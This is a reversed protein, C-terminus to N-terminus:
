PKFILIDPEQDNEIYVLFMDRAAKFFGRARSLNIRFSKNKGTDNWSDYENERSAFDACDIILNEGESRVSLIKGRHDGLPKQRLVFLHKGSLDESLFDQRSIVGEEM